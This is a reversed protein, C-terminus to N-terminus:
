HVLRLIKEWGVGRLLTLPYNPTEHFAVYTIQATSGSM